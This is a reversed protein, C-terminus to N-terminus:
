KSYGFYPFKVINIIIKKFKLLQFHDRFLKMEVYEIKFKEKQFFKGLQFEVISCQICLFDIKEKKKIYKEGDKSVILLYL